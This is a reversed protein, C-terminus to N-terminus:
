EVKSDLKKKYRRAFWVGLGILVVAGIVVPIIWLYSGSEEGGGGGGGGNSIRTKIM